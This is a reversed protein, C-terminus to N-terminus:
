LLLVPNGNVLWILAWNSLLDKLVKWIYEYAVQCHSGALVHQFKLWYIHEFRRDEPTNRPTTHYNKVSTEPCRIPGMRSPCKVRSSSVSVNDRFTPMCTGCSATYFRLLGCIEDVDRRFGSTLIFTNKITAKEPM